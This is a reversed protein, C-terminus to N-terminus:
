CEKMMLKISLVMHNDDNDFQEETEEIIGERDKLCDFLNDDEITNDEFFKDLYEETLKIYKM